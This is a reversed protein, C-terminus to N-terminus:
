AAAGRDRRHAAVLAHLRTAVADLIRDPAFRRAAALARRRARRV